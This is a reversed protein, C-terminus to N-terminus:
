GRYVKRLTGGTRRYAYWFRGAGRRERRASFAPDTDEVRVTAVAPDDLWSWWEPSGVAVRPGDPRHLWGGRVFPLHAGAM